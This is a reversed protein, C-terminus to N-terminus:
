DRTFVVKIFQPLLFLEHHHGIFTIVNHPRVITINFDSCSLVSKLPKASAKEYRVHSLVVVSLLNIYTTALKCRKLTVAAFPVSFVPETRSSSCHPAQLRTVKLTSFFRSFSTKSEMKLSETKQKCYMFAAVATSAAAAVAATAKNEFSPAVSSFISACVVVIHAFSFSVVTCM